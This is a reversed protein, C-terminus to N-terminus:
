VELIRLLRSRLQELQKSKFAKRTQDLIEVAEVIAGRLARETDGSSSPTESRSRGANLVAKM